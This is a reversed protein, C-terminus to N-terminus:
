RVYLTRERSNVYKKEADLCKSIYPRGQEKTQVVDILEILADRMRTREYESKLGNEVGMFREEIDDILFKQLRPEFDLESINKACWFRYARTFVTITHRM